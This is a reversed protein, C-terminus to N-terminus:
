QVADKRLMLFSRTCCSGQWVQTSPLSNVWQAALTSNILNYFGNVARLSLLLRLCSILKDVMGSSVSACNKKWSLVFGCGSPLINCCCKWCYKLRKRHHPLQVSTDAQVSLPASHFRAHQRKWAVTVSNVLHGPPTDCRMRRVKHLTDRDCEPNGYDSPM